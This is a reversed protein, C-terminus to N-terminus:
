PAPTDCLIQEPTKSTGNTFTLIDTRFREDTLEAHPMTACAASKGHSDFLSASTFVVGVTSPNTDQVEGQAVHCTRCYRAYVNKYLSREYFYQTCVQKVPYGELGEPDSYNTVYCASGLCNM